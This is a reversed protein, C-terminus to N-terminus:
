GALVEEVGTNPDEPNPTGEVVVLKPFGTNPCGADTPNPEALPNLKPWGANPPLEPNPCVAVTLVAGAGADLLPPPLPPPSNLETPEMLALEKENPDLLVLGPPLLPGLMKPCLPAGAKPCLPPAEPNPCPDNNPAFVVMAVVDEPNLKPCGAPLFM